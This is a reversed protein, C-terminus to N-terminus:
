HIGSDRICSRSHDSGSHSIFNEEGLYPRKSENIADNATYIMSQIAAKQYCTSDHLKKIRVPEKEPLYKGSNEGHCHRVSNKSHCGRGDVGGGHAFVSMSSIGIVIAILFHM